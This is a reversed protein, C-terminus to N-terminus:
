NSDKKRVYLYYYLLGISMFALAFIIMFPSKEKEITDELSLYKGKSTSISMVFVSEEVDELDEILEKSIHLNVMHGKGVKERFWNERFFDEFDAKIQFTCQYEDLWFYYHYLRNRYGQEITFSYDSLTGRLKVLDEKGDIKPKTLEASLILISVFSFFIPIRYKESWDIIKKFTLGKRNDKM